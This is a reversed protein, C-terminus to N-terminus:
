FWILALLHSLGMLDKLIRGQTYWLKLFYCIINLLLLWVWVQYKYTTNNCDPLWGQVYQMVVGGGWVCVCKFIYPKFWIWWVLVLGLRRTEDGCENKPMQPVRTPVLSSWIVSNNFSCCNIKQAFLLRETPGSLERFGRPRRNQSHPKPPHGTRAM